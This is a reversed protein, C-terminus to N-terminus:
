AGAAAATKQEYNSYAALKSRLEEPKFPKTIYEDMGSQLCKEKDGALTHATIGIIYNRKLSKDAERQRIQQTAEFGNMGHMQVDMLIAVYDNEKVFEIAETGSNAVDFSYGFSELFTTAVLINAPYDEVLLVKPLYNNKSLNTEM